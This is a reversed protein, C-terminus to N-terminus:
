KELSGNGAKFEAVKTWEPPATKLSRTDLEVLLRKESRPFVFIGWAATEHGKRGAVAFARAQIHVTLQENAELVSHVTYGNRNEGKGQFVAVVMCRSFDVEAQPITAPDQAPKETGTTHRLWLTKWAEPSEIRHYGAKTNKSERGDLSLLPRVSKGPEQSRATSLCPSVLGTVALVGLFVLHKRM